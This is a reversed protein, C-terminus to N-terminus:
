RRTATGHQKPTAPRPVPRAPPTPRHMEDPTHRIVRRSALPKGFTDRARAYKAALALARQATAHGQLALGLRENVFQQMLLLFGGNEEGVLNSVPVRVDTFSLEATDSCHWGM